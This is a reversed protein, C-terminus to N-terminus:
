QSLLHERTKSFGPLDEEDLVCMVNMKGGKLALYNNDALFDTEQKKQEWLGAWTLFVFIVVNEIM